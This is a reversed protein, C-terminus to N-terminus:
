GVQCAAILHKVPQSRPSSIHDLRFSVPMDSEWGLHHWHLTISSNDWLPDEDFHRNLM